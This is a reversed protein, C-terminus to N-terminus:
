YVKVIFKSLGNDISNICLPRHAKGDPGISINGIIGTFNGTSRIQRNLCERDAPDRCQNMASRLLAYAETGLGAYHTKRGEHTEGLKKGFPTLPMGHAFVDTALMGDALDLEDKYSAIMNSILGDTGMMKPEWNLKRVERIIHFVNEPSLPLYLLEPNKAQVSEITKSLDVAEKTLSIRDTIEGGISKFKSEFKAALYKPYSNDPQRFTAVKDILLEDRVFLAAVTGQFDDDFCLQSIFGNGETVSPPTALAALVPIQYQDAVKALALVPDSSSFTIIASVRDKEVLKKLLPVTL